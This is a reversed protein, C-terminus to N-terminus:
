LEQQDCSKLCYDNCDVYTALFAVEKVLAQVGVTESSMNSTGDYRQGRMNSTPINNEKLFALVSESIKRGIIRELSLFTLFEERIDQKHDLFRICIALHEVNHSTVEYSPIFLHLM